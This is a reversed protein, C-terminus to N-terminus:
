PWNKFEIQQRQEIKDSVSWIYVQSKVLLHFNRLNLLEFNEQWVRRCKEISLRRPAPFNTQAFKSRKLSGGAVICHWNTWSTSASSFLILFASDFCFLVTKQFKQLIHFIWLFIIDVFHQQRWGLELIKITWQRLPLFPPIHQSFPLLKGWDQIRIDPWLCLSPFGVFECYVDLHFTSFPGWFLRTNGIYPIKIFSRLICIKTNKWHQLTKLNPIPSSKHHNSFSRKSIM